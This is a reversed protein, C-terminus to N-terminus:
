DRKITPWFSTFSPDDGSPAAYVGLLLDARGGVMAQLHLSMQGSPHDEDPLDRWYPDKWQQVLDDDDM